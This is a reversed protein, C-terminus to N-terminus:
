EPLGSATLRRLLRTLRWSRSTLLRQNLNQEAELEASHEALARSLEEIREGIRVMETATARVSGGGLSRLVAAQSANDAARWSAPDSTDTSKARRRVAVPAAVHAFDFRAAVQCLFGWECADGLSSNFAVQSSQLRARRFAFSCIPLCDHVFLQYREVDEGLLPGRAQTIFGQDSMEGLEVQTLGFAGVASGTDLMELLQRAFTPYVLDGTGLFAMYETDALELGRQLPGAGSATAVIIALMGQFQATFERTPELEAEGAVVVLARVQAGVVGVLSYLQDRLQLQGGPEAAIVVDLQRQAQTSSPRGGEEARGEATPAAAVGPDPRLEVVYQYVTASPRGAALSRFQDVVAAPLQLRAGHGLVSTGLLAAVVPFSAATRFGAEAAMESFSALTFFRLHTHDLIGTPEYRWEDQALMLQVDVHTINPFSALVVGEPRLVEAVKALLASPHILHELVDALVVVDFRRDGVLQNLPAATVDGVIAELGRARAAAVAEPDLDIGLVRCKSGRELALDLGGAACGIDLVESGPSIQALIRGYTTNLNNPDVGFDYRSAAGPM